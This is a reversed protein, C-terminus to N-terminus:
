EVYSQFRGHVFYKLLVGLIGKSTLSYAILIQNFPKCFNIQFSILKGQPNVDNSNDNFSLDIDFESFNSIQVMLNWNVSKFTFDKSLSNFTHSEVKPPNHTYM